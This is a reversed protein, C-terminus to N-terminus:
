PRTGTDQAAMDVSHGSHASRIAALTVALTQRNHAGSPQPDTRGALVELAHAQLALVSDQILHWPRAGWAPVPPEADLTRCQGDRHLQLKYGPTLELTGADGEILALTQPFADPAYRSHFSCEISGVAGSAHRVLATFADQGAVGPNLRQTQCAVHVIDGMLFRAMDFLHLGVDTLALDAVTRLYPQNGYIDHGHRFALRLFQPTGIRGDDIAARLMQM